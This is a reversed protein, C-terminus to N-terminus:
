KFRFYETEDTFTHMYNSVDLGAFKKLEDNLRLLEDFSNCKKVDALLKKLPQSPNLAEDPNDNSLEVIAQEIQDIQEELNTQFIKKIGLFNSKNITNFHTELKKAEDPFLACYYPPYINKKELNYSERYCVRTKDMKKQDEFFSHLIRDVSHFDDSGPDDPYWFAIDNKKQSYYYLMPNTFSILRLDLLIYCNLILKTFSSLWPQQEPKRVHQTLNIPKCDDSIEPDGSCVDQILIGTLASLSNTDFKHGSDSKALIANAKQYDFKDGNALAHLVLRLLEYLAYGYSRTDYEKFPNTKYADIFKNYIKIALDIDFRKAYQCIITILDSHLLKLEDITKHMNLEDITKRM